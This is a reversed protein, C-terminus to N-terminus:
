FTHRITFLRGMTGVQETVMGLDFARCHQIDDTKRLTPGLRTRNYLSEPLHQGSETQGNALDVIWM